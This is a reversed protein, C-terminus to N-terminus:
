KHRVFLEAQSPIPGIFAARRPTRTAAATDRSSTAHLLFGDSLWCDTGAGVASLPGAGGAGGSAGGGRGGEVSSGIPLTSLTINLRGGSAGSAMIMLTKPVAGDSPHVSGFNAGILSVPPLALM